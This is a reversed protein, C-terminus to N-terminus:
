VWQDGLVIFMWCSKRLKLIWEPEHEALVPQLTLLVLLKAVAARTYRTLDENCMKKNKKEFVGVELKVQFKTDLCSVGKKKEGKGERKKEM